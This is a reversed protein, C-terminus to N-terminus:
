NIIHFNFAQLNQQFCDIGFCEVEEDEGARHSSDASGWTRTIEKTAISDELM